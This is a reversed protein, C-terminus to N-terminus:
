RRIGQIDPNGEDAAREVVREVREPANALVPNEKQLEAEYARAADDESYYTGIHYANNHRYVYASWTGADPNYRVGKIGTKSDSRVRHHRRAEEKTVIRL